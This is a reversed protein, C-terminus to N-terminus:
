EAASALSDGAPLRAPLRGSARDELIADAAKEGIMYIASVIFFGPIRPFVSADVVRLGTAGRVRFNSDLVAGAKIDAGIACTCSAHHGWATDRVYARIQEDTTVDTGPAEEEVIIGDQILPRTLERVFKVGEVVSNLDEDGGETGEEFYHFNIEPRELPDTSRLTVVGGRNQTHAKLVAWTLYNLKQVVRISYGPYYGRFDALVGFCFLDPLPRDDASRRIAALVAGNTGYVSGAYKNQADVWDRYQRDTNKYEAGKLIGWDDRARNVVGVEYRDQLNRGVGPLDILLPINHRALEEEPGVGSLMLLQPTNFAGGALIVERTALVSRTEGSEGSPQYHAQYLRRGKRYEVGIARHNADFLVRTALADLEITLNQPYKQQTEILRERTGMREHRRTTLPPYHLGFANDRVLRWDNPDGKGLLWWLSRQLFSPSAGLAALISKKLALVLSEDELAAAPVNKETHLWGKWGHRTPNIGLKALLRFFFRHNCNELKEFYRRMNEARWSRDGTLEAIHDWDANHPYVMIMANHATCGGLCGARPYLVGDVKEDRHDRERYKWDKEQQVPNTYHRVFFDWQMARNETSCAHFVPVRYDDPLREESEYAADGSKLQLPDGGAELVLVKCGAEALRAAVTGGGAGSGVVVYEFSAGDEIGM